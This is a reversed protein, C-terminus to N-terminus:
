VFWARETVTTVSTIGAESVALESGGVHRIGPGGSRGSSIGGRTDRVCRYQRTMLESIPVRVPDDELAEAVEGVSM